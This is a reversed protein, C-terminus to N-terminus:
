VFKFSECRFASGFIKMRSGNRLSAIKSLLKNTHKMKSNVLSCAGLNICVIVSEGQIIYIYLPNESISFYWYFMSNQHFKTPPGHIKWTKSSPNNNAIKTYYTMCSVFWTRRSWSLTAELQVVALPSTSSNATESFPRSLAGCYM